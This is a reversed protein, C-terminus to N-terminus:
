LAQSNDQSDDWFVVESPQKVLEKLLREFFEQSPKLAGLRASSYLGDFHNKFGMNELMYNARHKEQNTAVYCGVGLGRMKKVHEIIADEISHECNFWIEIFDDLSSPWQWKKLYEPLVERMDKEGRECELFPGKFFNATAEFPLNHQKDLVESFAMHANNIVGDADFIVTTIKTGSM